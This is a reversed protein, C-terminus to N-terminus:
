SGPSQAVLVKFRAGMGSPSMLRGVAMEIANAEAPNASMLRAARESMGLSSLFAGQTVPELVTLGAASLQRGLEAFDVQATLDAEGPAALPPEFAHRRVAQLTDGVASQTHGYDILLMALGHPALRILAKLDAGLDRYEIIDGQRASNALRAALSEPPAAEDGPAVTFELHGSADVQICRQWWDGDVRAWQQMPLADVYENGLVITPAAPLLSADRPWAPELRLRATGTALTEAQLRRLSASPEILHVHAAALCDPVVRLARLVDRMMTGRGPGLEVLNFREPSGMQRWVVTCWLGIVEGFIQSIEPATIFDGARGLVGGGAYYHSVCARMYDHVSIRGEPNTAITTRLQALLTTERRDTPPASV